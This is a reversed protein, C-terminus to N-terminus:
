ETVKKLINGNVASITYSTTKGDFSYSCLWVKEGNETTKKVKIDKMDAVTVGSAGADAFM